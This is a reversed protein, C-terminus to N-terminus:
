IVDAFSSEVRRFYRCGAVLLLLGVTSSVALAYAFESSYDGGLMMARFNTILGDVPNLPLVLGWRPNLHAREKMYITPTSFMWLQIMYPLVYRFDRYAVTLASLLVGIGIATLMLLLIIGPALLITWGFPSGYYLMLGLLLVFAIAFDVLATATAAIPIILRPFYVKTVLSQSGILSGSANSIANAFFQWPLIGANVIVPYPVAGTSIDSLRHFFPSFVVMMALPQLLAWMVGLATQKYRVKLDRWVLFYFLERYRWLEGLELFGRSGAEVTVLPLDDITAISSKTSSSPQQTQPEM